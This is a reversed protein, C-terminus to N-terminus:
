GRRVPRATSDKLELHTLRSQTVHESVVLLHPAIACNTVSQLTEQTCQSLFLEAWELRGSSLTLERHLGRKVPRWWMTQAFAAVAMGEKCNRRM